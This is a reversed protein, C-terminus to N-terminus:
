VLPDSRLEGARHRVEVLENSLNVIRDSMRQLIRFAISPDEHVRRLFTRKDVTIARVEGVAKVTASRPGKKFLAIEGFVDGTSLHHICVDQGHRHVWVEARGSQIVYMCDGTEGQQIIVDGDRYVKGLDGSEM